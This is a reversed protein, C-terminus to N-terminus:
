FSLPTYLSVFNTHVNGLTPTVPTGIKLEFLTQPMHAWM